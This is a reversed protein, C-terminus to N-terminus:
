RLPTLLVIERGVFQDGRRYVITPREMGPAVGPAPVARYGLKALNKWTKELRIDGSKMYWVPWTIALPVGPLAAAANQLFETELEDAEACYKKADVATPRAILAPGLTTESVVMDPKSPLKFTKRADQKWIASPADTKKIKMTKRLWEINTETGDVAKQSNDSGLVAWGRLLVEIPIVGTGCFPDYVTIQGQRERGGALMWGFNLLIQALKPPLLGSRTDRIPKHMDRETYADPDQAAITRGAWLKKGDRILVIEAGGEGNLLGADRLLATAAAQRETGVYRSPSGAEKLKDKCTRYLRRVTDLPVGDARIAFTLKGKKGELLKALLGPVAAPQTDPVIEEALLVTGGWTKLEAPDIPRQTEFLATTRSALRIDSMDPLVAQLESLSLLPQNGLFAAYRPM